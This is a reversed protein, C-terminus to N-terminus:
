KIVKRMRKKQVQCEEWLERSIILEVANSYYTPHKTKKGHVFDGMYIENQLINFITSDRQNDKDLVKEKNFLTSIKIMINVM